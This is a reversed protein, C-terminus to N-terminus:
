EKDKEIERRRGTNFTFYERFTENKNEFRDFLGAHHFIETTTKVSTDILISQEIQLTKLFIEVAKSFSEM